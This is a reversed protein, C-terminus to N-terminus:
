RDRRFSVYSRQGVPPASAPWIDPAPKAVGVTANILADIGFGARVAPAESFPAVPIVTASVERKALETALRAIVADSVEEADRHTATILLQPMGGDCLTKLRGALQSVRLIVGQRKEKDMLSRGDVVIWITEAAKLFELRDARATGILTTTWEGPLDPLALDVRRGDAARVLRLHLFGPRRDDSLETHVTMQEPPNGANWERAGRVIDEFAMMSWSDAFSWGDLQANAVM